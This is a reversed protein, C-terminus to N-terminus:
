KRKKVAIVINSTIDGDEKDIAKVGKDVYTQGIYVTVEEDELTLVPKENLIMIITRTATSVNGFSDIVKYTKTYTGVTNEDVKGSVEVGSTIDGDEKDIATFGPDVFMQTTFLTISQDGKLILVPSENLIVHVTRTATSVNGFGDTVKYTKTYTDVTSTDVDGSVVVESSLDGDEKDTATFGSEVFARGKYLTISKDGKLTLVPKENITMVITRTEISVNGFDDTITYTKTYTGEKSTDVSGTVVVKASIDGDEKDIATFGLEDFTEGVYLNVIKEGKLTLVPKENLKIVVIRTKTTVHGFSDTVKYTIKYTGEQTTDIKKLEQLNSDSIISASVFTSLALISLLGTKFKSLLKM